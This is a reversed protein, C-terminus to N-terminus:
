STGLTTNREQHQWLYLRHSMHGRMFRRKHLNPRRAQKTGNRPTIEGACLWSPGLVWYKLDRTGVVMITKPVLTRLYHRSPEEPYSLAFNADPWLAAGSCEAIGSGADGSGAAALGIDALPKLLPLDLSRPLTLVIASAVQSNQPGRCFKEVRGM